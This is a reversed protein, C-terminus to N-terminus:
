GLVVPWVVLGFRAGPHAKRARRLEKEATEKEYCTAHIPGPKGDCLKMIRWELMLDKVREGGSGARRAVPATGRSRV